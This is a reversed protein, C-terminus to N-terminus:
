PLTAKLIEDCSGVTFVAILSELKEADVINELALHLGEPLAGFRSLYVKELARHLGSLNGKREGKQLGLQEGKQLGLQEGKQLGLQEGELRSEARVKSEWKQYLVDISEM